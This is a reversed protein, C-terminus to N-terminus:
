SKLVISAGEGQLYRALWARAYRWERYSATKSLGLAEGAQETTLGAFYRLSVMKAARADHKELAKLAEDFALLDFESESADIAVADELLEERERGGGHIKRSKRRANEILIRRMAEAAAAFFHGRGDWKKDPDSQVLRLFAEHVLATPQLTQGPSERHLYHMALTRLEKYVLPLLQDAATPDGEEIGALLRTVENM